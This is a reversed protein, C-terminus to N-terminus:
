RNNWPPLRGRLRCAMALVFRCCDAAAAAALTGSEHQLRHRHHGASAAGAILEICAMGVMAGCFLLLSNILGAVFRARCFLYCCNDPAQTKLKLAKATYHSGHAPVLLDPQEAGAMTGADRISHYYM